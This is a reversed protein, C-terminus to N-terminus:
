PLLYTRYTIKSNEIKNFRKQCVSLFKNEECWFNVKSIKYPVLAQNFSVLKSGIFTMGSMDRGLFISMIKICQILMFDASLKSIRSCEQGHRNWIVHYPLISLWNFLSWYGGYGLAIYKWVVQFKTCTCMIVNVYNM